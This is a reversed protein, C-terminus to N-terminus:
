SIVDCHEDSVDLENRVRNSISDSEYSVFDVSLLLFRRQSQFTKMSTPFNDCAKGAFSM